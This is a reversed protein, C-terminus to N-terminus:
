PLAREGPQTIWISPSERCHTEQLSNQVVKLFLLMWYIPNTIVYWLSSTSTLTCIEALHLSKFMLVVVVVGVFVVVIVVVHYLLSLPLFLFLRKTGYLPFLLLWCQQKRQQHLSTMAMILRWTCLLFSSVVSLVVL